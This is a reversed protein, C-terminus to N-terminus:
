GTRIHSHSVGTNEVGFGLAAVVEATEESHVGLICSVADDPGIGNEFVLGLVGNRESLYVVLTSTITVTMAAMRMSTAINPVMKGMMGPEGTAMMVMTAQAHIMPEDADQDVPIMAAASASTPMLADSTSVPLVIARSRIGLVGMRTAVAAAM